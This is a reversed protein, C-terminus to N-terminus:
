NAQNKRGCVKNSRFVGIYIVEWPKRSSLAVSVSGSGAFIPPLFEALAVVPSIEVNELMGVMMVMIFLSYDV